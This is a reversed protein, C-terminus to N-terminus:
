RGARSAVGGEIKGQSAFRRAASLLGSAWNPTALAHLHTYSAWVNHVLVADRGPWCGSGRVVACATTAPEQQLLVRSYHFEHGHLTTGVDFFPNPADVLLEAYGHGQATVCVEVEFPLVGAMEYKGGRWAIARSLLMLGGCEAYIPLGREAAARLSGLFSRNAALRDAHTEPFGGGIYLADLDAPLEEAALACIPALQAGAQELAELNEAYYFSFAADKLVGIKLGSADPYKVPRPEVQAVPSATRAIEILQALDLTPAVQQLLVTELTATPGHEEPTVLGLHRAPVLDEVAVKPVAGVVPIGCSQEICERLIREHRKGNVRNLVVGALHLAPDFKQCGLVVAAATRTTKTANLVLVVPAGLLKALEASSHTGATDFGDFIGRNGEIVNIGDTLANRAFAAATTAAGMLYTDLNRAQHGAAWGLWAPDIYDPGKKFARVHLGTRRLSLLLALTVITKGADGSLGAIMLRPALEHEAM